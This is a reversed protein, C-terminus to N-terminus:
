SRGAKGGKTVIKKKKEGGSEDKGRKSEGKAVCNEEMGKPRAGESLTSCGYFYLKWFDGELSADSYSLPLVSRACKKEKEPPPPASIHVCLNHWVGDEKFNLYAGRKEM